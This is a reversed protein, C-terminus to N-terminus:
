SEELAERRRRMDMMNEASFIILALWIFGFTLWRTDAVPEDYLFVALLLACSPALYQVFGLVTLSLCLATVLLFLVELSPVYNVWVFSVPALGWFGYAAVAYLLGQRETALASASNAGPGAAFGGIL